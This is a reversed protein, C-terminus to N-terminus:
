DPGQRRQRRVVLYFLLEGIVFVLAAIGIGALLSDRKDAVWLGFFIGLVIFLGDAGWRDKPNGVIWQRFWAPRKMTGM